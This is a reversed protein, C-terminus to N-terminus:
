SSETYGYHKALAADVKETYAADKGYKSDFMADRIDRPDSLQIDDSNGGNGGADGTTISSGGMATEKLARITAIAGRATPRYHGHEDQIMDEYMAREEATLNARAWSLLNDVKGKDGLVKIAAEYNAESNRKAETETYKRAALM